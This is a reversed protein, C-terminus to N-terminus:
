LNIDSKTSAKLLYAKASQVEPKQPITTIFSFSDLCNLPVISGHEGFAEPQIPGRELFAKSSFTKNGIVSTSSYEQGGRNDKPTHVSQVLRASVNNSSSLSSQASVFNSSPLSSSSSTTQNLGRGVTNSDHHILKTSSEDANESPKEEKESM